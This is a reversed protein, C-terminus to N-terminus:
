LAEDLNVTRGIQSNLPSKVDARRAGARGIGLLAAGVLM